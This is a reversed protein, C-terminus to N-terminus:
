VVEIIVGPGIDPYDSRYIEYDETYGYSNTFSLTQIKQFGGQFGGAYFTPIGYRTPFCYWNYETGVAESSYNATRKNRIIGILSLV